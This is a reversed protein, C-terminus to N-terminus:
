EAGSVWYQSNLNQLEFYPNKCKEQYIKTTKIRFNLHTKACWMSKGEVSQAIICIFGSMPGVFCIMFIPTFIYSQCSSKGFPIRCKKWSMRHFSPQMYPVITFTGVDLLFQETETLLLAPAITAMHAGITTTLRM